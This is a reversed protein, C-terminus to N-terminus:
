AVSRRYSVVAGDGKMCEVIPFDDGFNRVVVGLNIKDPTITLCIGDSRGRATSLLVMNRLRLAIKLLHRLERRGDNVTSPRRDHIALYILM